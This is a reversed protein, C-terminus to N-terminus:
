VVCSSQSWESPENASHRLLLLFLKDDSFWIFPIAHEPHKRLVSLQEARFLHAFKNAATM